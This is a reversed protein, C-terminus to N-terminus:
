VLKDLARKKVKAVYDQSYNLENGIAWRKMCKCYYLIMVKTELETLKYEKCIKIMDEENMGKIIGKKKRTLLDIYDQVFYTILCILMGLIIPAIKSFENPVVSLVATSFIFLTLKVCNITSRLHLQKPFLSRFLHFSIFIFLTEFVKNLLFALGFSSAYILLDMLLKYKFVKFWVRIKASNLKKLKKEEQSKLKSKKLKM